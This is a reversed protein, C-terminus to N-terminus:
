ATNIGRQYFNKLVLQEFALGKHTLGLYGDKKELIGADQLAIAHPFAQYITQGFRTKFQNTDVGNAPKNIGSLKLGQIMFLSMQEAENLIKGIDVPLKGEEIVNSYNEMMKSSEHPDKGGINSYILGPFISYSSLGIGLTSGGRKKADRYTYPQNGIEKLARSDVVQNDSVQKYGSELFKEIAMVRMLMIEYFSPFQQNEVFRTRPSVRLDYFTISPVGLEIAATLDEEWSGITQQPIGYLMDINTNDPWRKLLMQVAKEGKGTAYVRKLWKLLGENRIVQLGVSARSAGINKYADLKAENVAPSIEFSLRSNKQYNPFFDTLLDGLEKVLEVSLTSPTGGGIHMGQPSLTRWGTSNFITELEKRLDKLYAPAEKVGEVVSYDCFKCESICFPIHVYASTIGKDQDKIIPIIEASSIPIFDKFPPYCHQPISDESYKPLTKKLMKYTEDPNFTALIDLSKAVLESGFKERMEKSFTAYKTFDIYRPKTVNLTGSKVQKIISLTNEPLIEKLVREFYKNYDNKKSIMRYTQSLSLGNANRQIDKWGDHNILFDFNREDISVITFCNKHSSLYGGLLKIRDDINERIDFFLIDPWYVSIDKNGSSREKLLDGNTILDDIALNSIEFLSSGDATILNTLYEKGADSYKKNDSIILVELKSQGKEPNESSKEDDMTKSIM